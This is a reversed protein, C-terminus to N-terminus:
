EINTERRSESQQREDSQQRNWADQCAENCFSHLVVSESGTTETVIPFWDTTEIPSGCHSCVPTGMPSAATTRDEPERDDTDENM